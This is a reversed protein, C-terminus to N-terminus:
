LSAGPIDMLAPATPGLSAAAESDGTGATGWGAVSPRRALPAAPRLAQRFGSYLVLRAQAAIKTEPTMGFARQTEVLPRLSRGSGLAPPAFIEDIGRRTSM